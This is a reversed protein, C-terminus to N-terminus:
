LENLQKDFVLSHLEKKLADDLDTIYLHTDWDFCKIINNFVGVVFSGDNKYSRFAYISIGKNTYQQSGLQCTKLIDILKLIGFQKYKTLNIM